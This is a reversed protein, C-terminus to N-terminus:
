AKKHLGSREYIQTLLLALRRGGLALKNQLVVRLQVAYEDGWTVSANYPLMTGNGYSYSHNAVADFGESLWQEVNLNNPNVGEAFTQNNILEVSVNRLTSVDLPFKALPRQYSQQLAGACSDHFSHVNSKKGNYRLLYLNGGNDGNPWRSDFLCSTHLPQHVDGVLHILFAFWFSQEHLTTPSNSQLGAISARLADRIDPYPMEQPTPCPVSVNDIVPNWCQDMYHWQNYQSTFDKIDDAWCSIEALTSLDEFHIMQYQAIRTYYALCEESLLEFAIQATIAHGNCNWANVM